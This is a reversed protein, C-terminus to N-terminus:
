SPSSRRRSTASAGSTPSACLAGHQGEMKMARDAIQYGGIVGRGLLANLYPKIRIEGIFRASYLALM